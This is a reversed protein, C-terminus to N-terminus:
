KNLIFYITSINKNKFLHKIDQNKEEGAEKKQMTDSPIELEIDSGTQFKDIYQKM